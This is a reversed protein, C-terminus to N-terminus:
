ILAQLLRRFSDEPSGWSIADGHRRAEILHSNFSAQQNPMCTQRYRVLFIWEDCNEM